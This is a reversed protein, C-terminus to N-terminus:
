KKVEHTYPLKTSLIHKLILISFAFVLKVIWFKTERTCYICKEQLINKKYYLNATPTCLITDRVGVFATFNTTGIVM